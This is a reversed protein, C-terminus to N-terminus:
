ALPLAFASASDRGRPAGLRARGDACAAAPPPPPRSLRLPEVVPRRRRRRLVPPPAAAVRPEGGGFRFRIGGSLVSEEYRVVMPFIERSTPTAMRHLEIRVIDSKFPKKLMNTWDFFLTFNDTVNFRRRSTSGRCPIAAAGAAHLIGNGPDDARGNPGIAAAVTTPCAFASRGASTCESWTGPGNPVDPIPESRVTANPDFPPTSVCPNIFTPCFLPMPRPTSTPSTRRSVSRRRGGPVFAWDFFTSVQAEFGKIKGKNTNVPGTIELPFGTDPDPDPFTVTRNVIFGKMDRRFVALRLSALARSIINWARTTITRSAAAEPVSQRRSGTRSAIPRRRTATRRESPRTSRPISNSSCRGRGRRPRRWACSWEPSFRINMNANPLWNTYRNAVSIPEILAAASWASRQVANGHHPGQDPGLAHRPCRRRERQRHRLRLQAACLGGPTKENISFNRRPDPDPDNADCNVFVPDGDCPVHQDINFQRLETMNNWVSRFTPALWTDPTPKHSDGHFASNFLQYDLPM